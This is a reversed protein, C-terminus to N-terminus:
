IHFCPATYMAAGRIMLNVRFYVNVCMCMIEKVSCKYLSFSVTGYADLLIKKYTSFVSVPREMKTFILAMEASALALARNM